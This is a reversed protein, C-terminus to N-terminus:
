LDIVRWVGMRRGPRDEGLGYSSDPALSMAQNALSHAGALYGRSLAMRAQRTLDLAKAKGDLGAVNSLPSHNSQSPAYGIRNDTAPANNTALADAIYKDPPPLPAANSTSTGM